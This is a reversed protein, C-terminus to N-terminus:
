PDIDTLEARHKPAAGLYVWDLTLSHTACYDLVESSPAGGCDLLVTPAAVGNTAAHSQLRALTEQQEKHTM